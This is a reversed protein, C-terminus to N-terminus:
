RQEEIKRIEQLIEQHERKTSELNMYSRILELAEENDIGLQHKLEARQLEVVAVQFETPEQTQLDRLMKQQSERLEELINDASTDFCHPKTAWRAGRNQRVERQDVGSPPATAGGGRRENGVDM